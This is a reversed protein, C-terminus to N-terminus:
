GVSAYSEPKALTHPVNNRDLFRRYGSYNDAHTRIFKGINTAQQLDAIEFNAPIDQLLSHPVGGFECLEKTRTDHCIVHAPVGSLLAILNGHFRSGTSFSCKAISARWEDIDFYIKFKSRVCDRVEEASIDSWGLSEGIRAALKKQEAEDASSLIHMEELESQLVFQADSSRTLQYMRREVDKMKDPNASHSMVNRSANLSLKANNAKRQAFAASLERPSHLYFSPCGTLEVNKIGIRNLVEATFAGRVGISHCRAAVAQVFRKTGPSIEPFGGASPAQAGLGVMICPLDIEEVLDAFPGFDFGSFLFNAAAIAIFDYNRDKPRHEPSISVLQTDLQSRLSYGILLNGTNRGTREFLVDTDTTVGDVARYPAGFYLARGHMSILREM